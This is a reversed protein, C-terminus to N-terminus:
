NEKQWTEFEKRKQNEACFFSGIKERNRKM